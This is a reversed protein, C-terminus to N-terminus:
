EIKSQKNAQGTKKVQRVININKQTNHGDYKQSTDRKSFNELNNCSKKVHM